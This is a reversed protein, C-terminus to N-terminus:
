QGNFELPPLTQTQGNASTINVLFQDDYSGEVLTFIYDQQQPQLEEEVLIETKDIVRLTFGSTSSNNDTITKLILLLNWGSNDDPLLWTVAYLRLLCELEIEQYARGATPPIDINHTTQIHTLINDLEQEPTQNASLFPTFPALVQWSLEPIAQHLQHNLWSRVNVAPQTVIQLLDPTTLVEIGQKWTLVKCLPSNRLQLLLTLLESSITALFNQRDRPIEPLTIASPSLCQLYLLLDNADSNFWDLPLRYNWDLDPKLQPQYQSIEDYRLFGRIIALEIEEEINIVIYFHANFEPLDLLARPITVELDSFDLNPILCVKFKGISLNFATNIVDAYQAQWTILEDQNIKLTPEREALWERCAFYTLFQLYIQWQKSQNHYNLSRKSAETFYEATLTISESIQSFELFYDTEDHHVYM